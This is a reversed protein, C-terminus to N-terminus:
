QQGVSWGKAVIFCSLAALTSIITIIIALSENPKLQQWWHLWSAILVAVKGFNMEITRSSGKLDQPSLTNDKWGGEVMSSGQINVQSISPKQGLWFVM